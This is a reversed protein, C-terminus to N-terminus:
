SRNKWWGAVLVAAVLAPCLMCVWLHAQCTIEGLHEGEALSDVTYWVLPGLALLVLLIAALAVARIRQRGAKQQQMVGLSAMVVRRTRHAVDRERGAQVGALAAVFERDAAGRGLDKDGPGAPTM